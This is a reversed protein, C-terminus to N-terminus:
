GMNTESTMARLRTYRVTLVREIKGVRMQKDTEWRLYEHLRCVQEVRRQDIENERYGVGQDVSGRVDNRLGAQRHLRRGSRPLPLSWRQALAIPLRVFLLDISQISRSHRQLLDLFDDLRLMAEM